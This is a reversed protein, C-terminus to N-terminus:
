FSFSALFPQRHCFPPMTRRHLINANKHRIINIIPPHWCCFPLEYRREGLAYLNWGAVFGMTGRETFRSACSAFMLDRMRGRLESWRLAALVMRGVKRVIWLM